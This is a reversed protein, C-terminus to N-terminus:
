KMRRQQLKQHCVVANIDKSLRCHAMRICREVARLPYSVRRFHQVLLKPRPCFASAHLPACKIAPSATSCENRPMVHVKWARELFVPLDLNSLHRNWRRAYDTIWGRQVKSEREDCNRRTPLARYKDIHSLGLPLISVLLSPSGM